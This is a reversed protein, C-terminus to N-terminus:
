DWDNDYKITNVYVDGHNEMFWDKGDTYHNENDRDLSEFADTEEASPTLSMGNERLKVFNARRNYKPALKKILALREEQTRAKMTM